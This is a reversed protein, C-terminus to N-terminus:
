FKTALQRSSNKVLARITAIWVTPNRVQTRWPRSAGSFDIGIFCAEEARSITM